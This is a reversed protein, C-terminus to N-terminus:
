AARVGAAFKNVKAEWESAAIRERETERESIRSVELFIHTM